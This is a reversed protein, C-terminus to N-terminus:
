KGSFFSLFNATKPGLNGSKEINAKMKINFALRAVVCNKLNLKM